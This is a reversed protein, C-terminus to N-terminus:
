RSRSKKKKISTKKKRGKGNKTYPRLYLGKGRKGGGGGTKPYPRLYLGKGRRKSKKRRGGGFKAKLKMANTVAWAAAKEGLSANSSNFRQWAREALALDAARRRATDKYQAYAIDHTKCAEDLPNIGKDGRALREKLKTGPGCFRYNPLHLETPLLDIARNVLTGVPKTLASVASTVIGRGRAVPLKRRSSRNRKRAM